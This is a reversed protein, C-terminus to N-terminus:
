FRVRLQATVSRMPAAATVLGYNSANVTTGFRTYSVMNLANEAEIRFELRRHEEGLPFSRGFSLNVAAQGPGPITNRGANGYRNAAPLAFAALNFPGGGSSVPLGTADARGSGVVGTGGANSLNGLVLATMPTGSSASVAGGLTWDKLLRGSWGHAVIPSAGDGVPSTLLLSVNLNHRQDFSSLGREAALDFANQAVVAQGGGYTSVNDISKSWTYAAAFSVGKQFRRMLRARGSHYISNGDASEYIFGVAYPIPRREESDAPSGPPAQNPLRQVDLRTGKTGLYSAEAVLSGPLNQQISVSWTQAYGVRYGRDVAYTNTIGTKPSGLLGEALTLPNARTTTFTNTVAFPPQQALRSAVQNYVSGNYYLGYGARVTLSRDLWPRWAVGLRPSVNNRDPEVLGGPFEGSFPGGLAPTVVAAAGFGPALDLNAMRGYKEQFPETYEYRLGANASLTARIRWDDQLYASYSGARFYTDPNGWRITSSQPLGLLFDAWDFGTSTLPNGDGDLASTMLGSFTYAGRGNEDARTNIQNRRYEAGFRINHQGRVWTVADSLNVSQDRRRLPSADTLDGFNTFSLNPPGNNIADPSTGQIGLEDAVDPGYSFYPLTDARNRSFSVRVDNVQNAGFHRMWGLSASLGRGSAEDRFGFLQTSEGGRSQLHFAGSLRDRASLTQSARIGLNDSNQPVATVFRYNQVLGPQNPLPIFTRLGVAVPDIRSLPVQNGPFPQGSLPDYVSVPGRAFSASFDGVREAASPVTAIRDFVERSRTGSYNVFFFTSRSDLLKPIRLRGGAGLGFRAKSYSPKAAEQGSIAYPRADLASNNLTLFAMGRIASQGAPQRNGFASVGRRGMWEPRPGGM